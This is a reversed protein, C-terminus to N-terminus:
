DKTLSRKRKPSSDIKSKKAHSPPANKATLGKRRASRPPRGLNRRAEVFKELDRVSVRTRRNIFINEIKGDRVQRDFQTTSMELLEAARKRSVLQTGKYLSEVEEIKSDVLQRLIVLRKSIDGVHVVLQALLPDLHAESIIKPDPRSTDHLAESVPSGARADTSNQSRRRKTM